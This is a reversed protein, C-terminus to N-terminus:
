ISDSLRGSIIAFVGWMMGLAGFIVGVDQYNLNLDIMMEPLLPAIIWRDLGVLGFGLSLLLVAKWEYSTDWSETKM